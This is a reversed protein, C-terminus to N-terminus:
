GATWSIGGTSACPGTCARCPLPHKCPARFRSAATAGTELPQGGGRQGPGRGRYLARPCPRPLPGRPRTENFVCGLFERIGSNELLGPPLLEFLSLLLDAPNRGEGTFATLLAESLVRPARASRRFYEGLGLRFFPAPSVGLPYHSGATVEAYLDRPSIGNAILSTVFAGGSIGVYLDLDLVSRDLLEELARLCGIEYVAGTIGGGACVLAM